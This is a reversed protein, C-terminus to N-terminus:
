ATPPNIVGITTVTVSGDDAVTARYMRCLNNNYFYNDYFFYDINNDNTFLPKISSLTTRSNSKMVIAIEEIQNFSHSYAYISANSAMYSEHLTITNDLPVYLTKINAADIYMRVSGDARLEVATFPRIGIDHNYSLPKINIGIPMGMEAAAEAPETEVIMATSPVSASFANVSITVGEAMAFVGMMEKVYASMDLLCMVGENKAAKEMLLSYVEANHRFIEEVIPDLAASIGPLSADMEVKIQEWYEPTFDMENVGTELLDIPIMVRLAGDGSGSGGSNEAMLLLLNRLSDATIGKVNNSVITGNIADIVEQNAAM